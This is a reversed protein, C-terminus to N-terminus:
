PTTVKIMMKPTTALATSFFLPRRTARFYGSSTDGGLPGLWYHSDSVFFRKHIIWLRNKENTLEHTAASPLKSVKM